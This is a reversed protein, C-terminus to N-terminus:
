IWTSKMGMGSGEVYRQKGSKLDYGEYKKEIFAADPRHTVGYQKCLSQLHAESRVEIPRGKPDINRTVYPFASSPVHNRAEAMLDRDATEGCTQCIVTPHLQRVAM